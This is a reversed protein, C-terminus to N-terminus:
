RGTWIELHNQGEREHWPRQEGGEARGRLNSLRRRHNGEHDTSGLLGLNGLDAGHRAHCGGRTARRHPAVVALRALALCGIGLTLALGWQWLVLDPFQRDWRRM